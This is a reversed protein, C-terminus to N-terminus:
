GSVPLGETVRLSKWLVGARTFQNDGSNLAQRGRLVWAPNILLFEQTGGQYKFLTSSSLGGPLIILIRPGLGDRTSIAM